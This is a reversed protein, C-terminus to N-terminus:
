SYFLFVCNLLQRLSKPSWRMVAFESVFYALSDDCQKCMKQFCFNKQWLLDSFFFLFGYFNTTRYFFKNELLKATKEIRKRDSFFLAWFLKGLFNQYLVFMFIDSFFLKRHWASLCLNLSARRVQFGKPGKRSRHILVWVQMPMFYLARFDHGENM